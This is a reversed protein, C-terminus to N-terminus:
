RTGTTSVEAWVTKGTGDADADVGWADCLEAVLGLGRGSTAHEDSRRRTPRRGTRDHVEIRVVGAAVVLRVEFPTRAHVVANTALESVVLAATPAARELHRSALLDCVRRRAERSSSPDPPFAWAEGAGPHM